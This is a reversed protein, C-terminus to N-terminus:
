VSGWQLRQVRNEVPGHQIQYYEEIYTEQNFELNRKTRKPIKRNYSETRFCRGWRAKKPALPLYSFIKKKLDELLYDSSLLQLVPCFSFIERKLDESLYNTSLVQLIEQSKDRNM